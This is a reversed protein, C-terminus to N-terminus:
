IEGLYAGIDSICLWYAMESLIIVRKKEKEKGIGGWIYFFRGIGRKKVLFVVSLFFFPLPYLDLLVGQKRPKLTIVRRNRERM